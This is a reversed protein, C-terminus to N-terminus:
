DWTAEEAAWWSPDDVTVLEMLLDDEYDPFWNENKM